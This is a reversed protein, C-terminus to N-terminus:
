FFQKLQRAHVIQPQIEPRKKNHVEHILRDAPNKSPLSVIYIIDLFLHPDHSTFRDIYQLLYAKIEGDHGTYENDILIRKATSLYPKLLIFLGAAFLQYYVAPKFKRKRKLWAIVERKVKAPIIIVHETSNSLALYTPGKTHGM